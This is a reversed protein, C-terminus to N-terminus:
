TQAFAYLRGSSTLSAMFERIASRNEASPIPIGNGCSSTENFFYNKLCPNFIIGPDNCSGVAIIIGSAKKKYINPMEVKQRWSWGSAEASSRIAAM